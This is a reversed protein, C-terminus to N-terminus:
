KKSEFFIGMKECKKECFNICKCNNKYNKKVVFNIMKM